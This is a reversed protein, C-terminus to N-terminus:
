QRRQRLSDVLKSKLIKGTATAPLSESALIRPVSGMSSYDLGLGGHEAGIRISGIGAGIAERIEVTAMSRSKEWIPARPLIKARVFEEAITTISM